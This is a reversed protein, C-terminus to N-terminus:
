KQKMHTRYSKSKKAEANLKNAYDDDISGGQPFRSWDMHGYVKKASHTKCTWYIKDDITVKDILIEDRTCIRNNNWLCDLRHCCEAPSDEKECVALKFCVGNDTVVDVEIFSPFYTCEGECKNDAFPVYHNKRFKFVFSKIKKNFQCDHEKCFIKVRKM